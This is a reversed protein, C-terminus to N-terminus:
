KQFKYEEPITGAGNTFLKTKYNNGYMQDLKERYSTRQNKGGGFILDYQQLNYKGYQGNYDHGPSRLAQILSVLSIGLADASAFNIGVINNDIDRVSSGSAGQLPQWSTLVYGLGHNVYENGQYPSNVEKFNGLDFGTDAQDNIIPSTITIDTIGPKEIFNRFVLSNSLSNGYEEVGKTYDSSKNTWFSTTYKLNIKEEETLEQTNISNDSAANPFGVAIFDAKIKPISIEKGEYNVNLKEKTLEEYKSLVDFNAPKSQESLPKSAYDATIRKVLEDLSEVTDYYSSKGRYKSFGLKTEGFAPKQKSFDIELVAFDAMEQLNSFKSSASLYDSPNTNLFNTGAYVIKVQDPTLALTDINVDRNTINFPVDSIPTDKNFHSLTIRFTQGKVSEEAKDLARKAKDYALAVPGPVNNYFLQKQLEIVEPSNEGQKLTLEKIKKDIELYKESWKREEPYAAKLANYEEELKPENTYLDGTKKPTVFANAVHLNTALYWKQPYKGSPDLQYDLIWATGFEVRQESISPGISRLKENTNYFTISYSELAANKYYQNPFIRTRGRDGATAKRYPGKLSYKLPNFVLNNENDVVSFNKALSDLYYPAYTNNSKNNFNSIVNQNVQNYFSLVKSNFNDGLRNRLESYYHVEDDVYDKLTKQNKDNTVYKFDSPVLSYEDTKTVTTETPNKESPNQTNEPDNQTEKKDGSDTNPNTNESTTDCSASLVVFPMVGLPAVGLSLKKWYKKSNFYKM